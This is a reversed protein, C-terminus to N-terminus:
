TVRLYLAIYIYIISKKGYAYINSTAYHSLSPSSSLPLSVIIKFRANKEQTKPNSLQDRLNKVKGRILHLKLAFTGANNQPQIGSNALFM